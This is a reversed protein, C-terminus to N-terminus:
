RASSPLEAVNQVVAELNDARRNLKWCAETAEACVPREKGYSITAVRDAAVGMHIYYSRVAAARRQGLALNYEVTGRQDCNGAVQIRVDHSKLWEVNGQLVAQASPKLDDSAFDFYVAKLEPISVMTEGRMSPEADPAAIPAAAALPPAALANTQLSKKVPPHACGAGLWLACSIVVAAPKVVQRTDM